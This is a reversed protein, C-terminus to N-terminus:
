LTIIRWNFILFFISDRQSVPKADRSAKRCKHGLLSKTGSFRLIASIKIDEEERDINDMKLVYHTVWEMVWALM